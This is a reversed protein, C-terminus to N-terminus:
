GASRHTRAPRATSRGERMAAFRERAEDLPIAKGMRRENSAGPRKIPKPRQGKGHGRQWNGAALLDVINALLHETSDWLVRDGHQVHVLRATRPLQRVLM